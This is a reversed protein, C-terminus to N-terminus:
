DEDFLSPQSLEETDPAEIHDFLVARLSELIRAEPRAFEGNKERARPVAHIAAEVLAAFREDDKRGTQQLWREAAQLGDEDYILM